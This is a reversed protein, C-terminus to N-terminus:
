LPKSRQWQRLENQFACYSTTGPPQYIPIERKRAWRRATNESVGLFSAISPLGWLKGRVEPELIADLRWADLPPAGTLDKESM